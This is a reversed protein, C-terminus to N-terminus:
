AGRRRTALAFAIITSYILGLFVAGAFQAVFAFAAVKWLPFAEMGPQPCMVGSGLVMLFIGFFLCSGVGYVAAIGMGFKLGSKFPLQDVAERKRAVMGLYIGAIESLNFFAIPGVVHVASCPNPVLLHAFVVWTIIAATILLGYKLALKL